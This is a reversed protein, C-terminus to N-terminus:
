LYKKKTNEPVRADNFPLSGTVLEYLIVGLAWVDAKFGDYSGSLSEPSAYSIAVSPRNEPFYSTGERSRGFDALKMVM